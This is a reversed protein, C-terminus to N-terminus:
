SVILNIKERGVRGRLQHLQALGFREAHEVVMMTANPIDIGVEIVTTAVLIQIERKSFAQMISEKEEKKMQGHLLGVKFGHFIEKQFHQYMQIASKLFLKSEQIVPFVWFVQEGKLIREKAFLYVDNKQSENKWYTKIAKRGTPFADLVSLDTDGYETLVLARPFPTATMM